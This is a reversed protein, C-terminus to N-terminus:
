PAGLSQHTAGGVDVVGDSTLADIALQTAPTMTGTAAGTLKGHAILATQVARVDSTLNAARKGRGVPAHLAVAGKTVAPFIAEVTSEPFSERRFRGAHKAVSSISKLGAVLDAESYLQRLAQYMTLGDARQYHWWEQKNYGTGTKTWGDQAPIRAWGHSAALATVDVFPWSPDVTSWWASHFTTGKPFTVIGPPSAATTLDKHRLYLRFYTDTGSPEEIIM